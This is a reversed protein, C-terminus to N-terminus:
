GELSELVRSWPVMGDRVLVPPTSRADVITSPRQGPTEGADIVWVRPDATLAALESLRRAPPQGSANASTATLAHGFTRALARAVPHAPVRIAVTNGAAAVGPATTGRVPLVLALPGPWFTEALRRSVAGLPGCRDEVQEISSAMLPLASSSLRGKLDFLAAVAAESDPNVALGYFTETPVAVIGDARLWDAVPGLDGDEGAAITTLRM